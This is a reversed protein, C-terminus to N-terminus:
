RAGRHAKKLDRYRRRRLGDKRPVHATQKRLRRAVKGNM